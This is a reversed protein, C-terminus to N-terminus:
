YKVDDASGLVVDVEKGNYGIPSAQMVTLTVKTGASYYQMEEKLAEMSEVKQGNIKTIVDGRVLGAGAAASGDAVSSIYVGIPMGYVQAYEKEVTVGTIGLYGQDGDEVKIKTEKNMLKRIIPEADSIPIAYGMGEIANGGIKNSNIGVVEGNINLLAGGSNGPNIAADTQIFKSVESDGYASESSSVAIPRDLASVVGTTVSQGYGLANGIAIVPDGVELADSDGLKAIAISDVTDDDLDKLQVAIVALDRDPDTGKIQAEASEDNVFVVALEDASEVVHHNTAILLETDSKGIIIGSGASQAEQSYVQGFYQMKATYSNTVSVVSPMVSKVVDSVDLIGETAKAPAVTAIDPSEFTEEEEEPDEDKTKKDKLSVKKETDEIDAEDATNDSKIIKEKTDSGLFRDGAYSVALFGAGAFIGFIIGVLAGTLIKKFTGKKKKPTNSSGQVPTQSYNQYNGYSDM